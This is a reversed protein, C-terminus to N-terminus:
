AFIKASLSFFHLKVVFVETYRPTYSPKQNKQTSKKLSKDWGVPLFCCLLLRSHVSSILLCSRWKRVSALCRLGACKSEVPKDFDMLIFASMFLFTIALLLLCIKWTGYRSWHLKWLSIIRTQVSQRKLHSLLFTYNEATEWIAM